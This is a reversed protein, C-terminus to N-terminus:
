TPVVLPSITVTLTSRRVMCSTCGAHLAPTPETLRVAEPRRTTPPPLPESARNVLSWMHFSMAGKADTGPGTVDTDDVPSPEASMTPVDFPPMYLCAPASPLIPAPESTCCVRCPSRSFHLLGQM